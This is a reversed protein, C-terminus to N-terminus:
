NMYQNIQSTSLNNFSKSYIELNPDTFGLNVNMNDNAYDLSLKNTNNVEKQSCSTVIPTIISISALCSFIGLGLKIKNNKM